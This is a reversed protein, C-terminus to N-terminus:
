DDDDDFDFDEVSTVGIADAIYEVGEEKAEKLFELMKGIRTYTYELHKIASDIHCDDDLSSHEGECSACFYKRDKYDLDMETDFQCDDIELESFDLFLVDRRIVGVKKGEYNVDTMDNGLEKQLAALEAKKQKIQERLVNRPKNSGSNLDLLGM